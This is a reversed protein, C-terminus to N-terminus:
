TARSPSASPTSWRRRVRGPLARRLRRVLKFEDSLSVLPAADRGPALTVRSADDVVYADSRMVLLDSTTKVPLFRSRPVRLALAGDFVGIAAGM